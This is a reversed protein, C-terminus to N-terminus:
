RSLADTLSQWTSYGGCSSSDAGMIAELLKKLEVGLAIRRSKQVFQKSSSSPPDLLVSSVRSNPSPRLYSLFYM